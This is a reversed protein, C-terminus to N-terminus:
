IEILRRYKLFEDINSAVRRYIDIGVGSVEPIEEDSFNLSQEPQYSLMTKDSLDDPHVGYSVINFTRKYKHCETDFENRWSWYDFNGSDDLYQKWFKFQSKTLIVDIRDKFIDWTKGGFDVIKSVKKERAFRKLDFVMVEGKIGPIVRFQFCSPLYFKGKSSHCKLERAWKLACEPTVLGAGDFPIIEIPEKHHKIGKHGIPNYKKNTGTGSIEVIDAKQKITKKYDDIVVINPMYEVPTSDTTVMAYYANWKSPWDYVLTKPMGCLLIDNLKDVIDKQVFLNKQTRSHGASCFTSVYKCQDVIELKYHNDEDLIKNGNEDLVYQKNTVTLEGNSEILKDYREVNKGVELTFYSPIITYGSKNKEPENDDPKKNLHLLIRHLESESALNKSNIQKNPTLIIENKYTGDKNKVMDNINISQVEVIKNM